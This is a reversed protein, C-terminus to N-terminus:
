RRAAGGQGASAEAFTILAAQDIGNKLIMTTPENCTSAAM